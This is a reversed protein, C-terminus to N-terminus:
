FNGEIRTLLRFRVTSGNPHERVPGGLAHLLSVSAKLRDGLLSEELGLHNEWHSPVDFVPGWGRVEKPGLRTASVGVRLGYPAQWNGDLGAWWPSPLYEMADADRGRFARAGGHLRWTVGHGIGGRPFGGAAFARASYNVLVYDSGRYAGGRRLLGDLTELSELHFVPAGWEGGGEAAAGVMFSGGVWRYEVGGALGRAHHAPIYRAGASDVTGASAPFYETPVPRRALPERYYARLFQSPEHGDFKEHFEATHELQLMQERYGASGRSVLQFSSDWPVWTQRYRFRVPYTKEEFPKFASDSFLARRQYGLELRTLWGGRADGNFGLTVESRRWRSAHFSDPEAADWEQDRISIDVEEGMRYLFDANFGEWAYGVGSVPSVTWWSGQDYQLAIDAGRHSWVGGGGLRSQSPVGGGLWGKPYPFSFPKVREDLERDQYLRNEDAALRLRVESLAQWEASLATFGTETGAGPAVDEGSGGARAQFSVTSSDDLWERDPWVRTFPHTPWLFPNLDGTAQYFSRGSVFGHMGDILFHNQAEEFRDSLLETEVPIAPSKEWAHSEEARVCAAGLCLAVLARACPGPAFNM